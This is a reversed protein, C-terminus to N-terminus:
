AFTTSLGYKGLIADLTERDRASLTAIRAVVMQRSREPYPRCLYRVDSGYSRADFLKGGSALAVANARIFPQYTDRMRSLLLDAFPTLKELPPFRLEPMRESTCRANWSLLTTFSSLRPRPDPDMLTHARLGGLVCCDLATPREGLLFPTNRLQQDAAGMFELYEEEAALQQPAYDTGTARCARRGWDKLEEGLEPDGRSMIAAAFQASAPYHWRFHVMVRSVWEDFYEELIHAIAGYLGPPFMERGPHRADLLALIPTTDSLMWNEPTHLVPVQHTGARKELHAANERTKDCREFDLGYFLCACELKRTFLSLEDGYIRYTMGAPIDM